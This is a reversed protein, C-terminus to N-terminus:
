IVGMFGSTKAVESTVNSFSGWNPLIDTWNSDATNSVNWNGTNVGQLFWQALRQMYQDVSLTPIFTGNGTLDQGPSNPNIEGAATRQATILEPYQGYIRGGNVAGGLVIQNGGWAHDTGDGNPIMARGFDSATFLTVADLAGRETPSALTSTIAEAGTQDLCKIQAYFEALAQDLLELFQFHATGAGNHHDWGGYTIFFVQRRPFSPDQQAAKQRGIQVIRAVRRLKAALSHGPPVELIPETIAQSGFFTQWNANQNLGDLLSRAYAQPLVQTMRGSELQAQVLNQLEVRQAVLSGVTLDSVRGSGFGDTFHRATNGILAPTVGDMSIMSFSSSSVASAIRDVLRGTWGTASSGQPFCTQWQLIQDNHSQLQKPKVKTALRFQAPTGPEVLPGVNSIFAAHPGSATVTHVGGTASGAKAHTFSTSNFIKQLRQLKGHLALPLLSGNPQFLPLVADHLAVGDFLVDLGLDGRLAKYNAWQAPQPQTGQWGGNPTYGAGPAPVLMGFSDNGGALFLCVLARYDSPASIGGGQASIQSLAHLSGWTALPATAFGTFGSSVLFDRRKM